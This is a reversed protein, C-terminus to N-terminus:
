HPTQLHMTIDWLFAVLHYEKWGEKSLTASLSLILSPGKRFAQCLQLHCNWKQMPQQRKNQDRRRFDLSSTRRDCPDRHSFYKGPLQSLGGFLIPIYKQGVPLCYLKLMSQPYKAHIGHIHPTDFPDGITHSTPAVGGGGRSRASLGLQESVEADAAPLPQSLSPLPPPPCSAVAGAQGDRVGLAAALAEGFGEARGDRDGGGGRDALVAGEGM